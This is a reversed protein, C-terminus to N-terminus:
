GTFNVPVAQNTQSGSASRVYGSISPGSAVVIGVIEGTPVTSLQLGYSQGPLPTDPRFSATIVSDGAADNFRYVRSGQVSLQCNDVLTGSSFTNANVSRLNLFGGAEDTPMFCTFTSTPPAT